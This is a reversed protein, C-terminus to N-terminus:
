PLVQSKVITEHLSPEVQVPRLKKGEEVFRETLQRARRAYIEPAFTVRREEIPVHKADVKRELLIVHYGFPSRVVGSQAGESELSNAARAFSEDFRPGEAVPEGIKDLQISRGDRTMPPLSEAVVEAGNAPFAKAAAIFADPDTIGQVTTAIKRALIQALAPSQGKAIRVVFHTTKAASPRDVTFWREATVKEVEADTPVGDAIVRSYSLELLARALVSRETQRIRAAELLGKRAAEAFLADVVWGRTFEVLDLGRRAVAQLQDRTLSRQGVAAVVDNELPRRTFEQSDIPRSNCVPLFTLGGCCAVIAVFKRHRPQFRFRIQFQIKM